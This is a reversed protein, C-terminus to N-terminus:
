LRPLPAGAAAVNGSRARANGLMAAVAPMRVVEGGELRGGGPQELFTVHEALPLRGLRDRTAITLEDAPKRANPLFVTHMFEAFTAAVREPEMSFADLRHVGGGPDGGAYAYQDGWATEGFFLYGDAAGHWAHRWLGPENWRRLEIAAEGGLGFLRFYGGYAEVGNSRALVRVHDAPLVVELMAESFLDAPEHLSVSGQSALDALSEVISSL